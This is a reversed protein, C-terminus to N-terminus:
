CAYSQIKSPIKSPDQLPDQFPDQLPGQFPDQFPDQLPDQLPVQLPDQLKWSTIIEDQDWPFQPRHIFGPLDVPVALWMACAVTALDSPSRQGALKPVYVWMMMVM